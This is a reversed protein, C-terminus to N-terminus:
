RSQVNNLQHSLVYFSWSFRRFFVSFRLIEEHEPRGFGLVLPRLELGILYEYLLIGVFQRFVLLNPHFAFFKPKPNTYITDDCQHSM